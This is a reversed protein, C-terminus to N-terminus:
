VSVSGLNSANVSDVPANELYDTITNKNRLNIAVQSESKCRDCVRDEHGYNKFDIVIAGCRCKHATRLRDMKEQGTEWEGKENKFFYQTGYIPNRLEAVGPESFCIVTFQDSLLQYPTM